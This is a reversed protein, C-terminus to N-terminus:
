YRVGLQHFDFFSLFQLKRQHILSSTLSKIKHNIMAIEKVQEAQDVSPRQIWNRLVLSIQLEQFTPRQSEKQESEPFESSVVFIKTWNPTMEAISVTILLQSLIGKKKLFSPVRNLSNRVSLLSVSAVNHNIEISRNMRNVLVYRSNWLERSITYKTSIVRMTLLSNGAVNKWIPIM